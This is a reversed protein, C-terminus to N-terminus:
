NQFAGIPVNNGFSNRPKANGYKTIDDAVIGCQITMRAPNIHLKPADVVGGGRIDYKNNVTARRNRNEAM